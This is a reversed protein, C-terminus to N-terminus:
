EKEGDTKKKTKMLRDNKFYYFQCMEPSSLFDGYLMIGVPLVPIPCEWLIIVWENNIM